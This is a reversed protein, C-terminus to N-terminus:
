ADCTRFVFRRDLQYKILYGFALGVVGGFYRMARTEFIRDFGLEFGWFIATTALGTATYLAFTRGDHAIDQARFLFIYRKDLLYKVVLGVATGVALALLVDHAGGYGRIVLDQAAINAVTADLALIFYTFALKM